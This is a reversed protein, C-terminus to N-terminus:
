TDIILAFHKYRQKRKNNKTPQPYGLTHKEYIIAVCIHPRQKSGRGLMNVKNYFETKFIILVKKVKSLTNNLVHSAPAKNSISM